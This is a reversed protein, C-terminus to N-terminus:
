RLIGKGRISLIFSDVIVQAMRTNLVWIPNSGLATCTAALFSTIMSNVVVGKDIGLNILANNWMKYTFFYIGYSIVSGVLASSMGSYLRSVGEKKLLALLKNLSEIATKPKNPV